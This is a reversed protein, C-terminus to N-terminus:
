KMFVKAKPLCSKKEGQWACLVTKLINDDSSLVEGEVILAEAKASRLFDVQLDITSIRSEKFKLYSIGAIGGVSNMVTAIIGSHWQNKRFDGIVEEKFPIKIKAYGQRFAMLEVALFKHFPIAKEVLQKIFDHDLEQVTM